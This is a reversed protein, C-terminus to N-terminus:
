VQKQLRADAGGSPRDAARSLWRKADAYIRLKAIEQMIQRHEASDARLDMAQSELERIREDIEAPTQYIVRPIRKM